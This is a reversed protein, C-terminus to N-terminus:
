FPVLSAEHTRFSCLFVLTLLLLLTTTSSFKAVSSASLRGNISRLTSAAFDLEKELIKLYASFMRKKLLQASALCEKFRTFVTHLLSHMELDQASTAAEYEDLLNYIEDVEQIELSYDETKETLPDLM